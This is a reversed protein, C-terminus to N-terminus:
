PGGTRGDELSSTNLEGFFRFRQGAHITPRSIFLATSLDRRGSDTLALGWFESQSFASRPDRRIEGGLSLFVTEMRMLGLIFKIPDWFDDRKAQHDSLFSGIRKM